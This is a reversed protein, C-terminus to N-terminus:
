LSSRLLLCSNSKPWMESFVMDPGYWGMDPGPKQSCYTASIHFLQLHGYSTGSADREVSRARLAAITVSSTEVHPQVPAGCKDKIWKTIFDAHKQCFYGSTATQLADAPPSEVAFM